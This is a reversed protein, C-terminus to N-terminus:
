DSNEVLYVGPSHEWGYYATCNEHATGLMFYHQGSADIPWPVNFEFTGDPLVPHCTTVFAEDGPSKISFHVWAGQALSNGTVLTTTGPEVARCPFGSTLEVGRHLFLDNDCPAFPVPDCTNVAGNESQLTIGYMPLGDSFGRLEHFHIPISERYVDLVELHLHPGSSYGTNGSLGIVEGRCVTDGPQVFVGDKQLHAMVVVHGSELQMHIVNDDGLCSPDNCGTDSNSRTMVIRGDGPALLETGEDLPFDLAFRSTGSHTHHTAIGQSLSFLTGEALPMNLWVARDTQCQGNSLRTGLGCLADTDPVCVGDLTLTGDACPAPAPTPVCSAGDRRTGPGCALTSQPVCTGQSEVTGEGCILTQSPLCQGQSEKTGDGCQVSPLADNGQCAALFAAVSLLLSRM